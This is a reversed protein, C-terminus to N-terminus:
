SSLLFSTLLVIKYVLLIKFKIVTQSFNIHWKWSLTTISHIKVCHNELPAKSNVMSWLYYRITSIGFTLLSKTELPSVNWNTFSEKIKLCISGLSM